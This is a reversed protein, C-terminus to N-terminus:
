SRRLAAGANPASKAMKTKSKKARAFVPGWLPHGAEASELEFAPDLKLAKDFQQRCLRPRGSVCYSFATYKIAVLQNAKSSKAIEAARLKKIAGNYDGNDYAEIGDRLALQGPDAAVARGAPETHPHQVVADARPHALPPEKGSIVTPTQACGALLAAALLCPTFIRTPYMM